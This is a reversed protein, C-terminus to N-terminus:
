FKPKEPKKEGSGSSMSFTTFVSGKQVKGESGEEGKKLGGATKVLRKPHPVAQKAKGRHCLSAKFFGTWRSQTAIDGRPAKKSRKQQKKEHKGERSGPERTPERSRREEQCCREKAPDVEKEKHNPRSRQCPKPPSQKKHTRSASLWL